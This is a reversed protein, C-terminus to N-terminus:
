CAQPVLRPAKVPMVVCPGQCMGQVTDQASHRVSLMCGELPRSQTCSPLQTSCAVGVLAIAACVWAATGVGDGQLGCPRSNRSATCMGATLQQMHLCECLHHVVATM